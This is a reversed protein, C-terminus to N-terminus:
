KKCRGVSSVESLAKLLNLSNESLNDGWDRVSIDIIIAKTAEQGALMRQGTAIFLFLNRLAWVDAKVANYPQKKLVEPSCCASHLDFTSCVDGGVLRTARSFGSLKVMSWKDFVLISGGHINLHAWNQSHIWSVAEIIQRYVSNREVLSLFNKCEAMVNDMSGFPAYDLALSFRTGVQLTDILTVVNSHKLCKLARVESILRKRAVRSCDSRLCKMYVRKNTKRCLMLFSNVNANARMLKLAKFNSKVACTLSTWVVLEPMAVVKPHPKRLYYVLCSGALLLCVVCGLITYIMVKDMNDNDESVGCNCPEDFDVFEEDDWINDYLGILSDELRSAAACDDYLCSDSPKRGVLQHMRDFASTAMEPVAELWLSIKAATKRLTLIEYTGEGLQCILSHQSEASQGRDYSYRLFALWESFGPTDDPCVKYRTEYVAQIGTCVLSESKQPAQPGGLTAPWRFPREEKRDQCM